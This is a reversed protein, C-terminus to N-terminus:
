PKAPEPPVPRDGGGGGPHLKAMAVPHPLHEVRTGLDVTSLGLHPLRSSPEASRSAKNLTSCSQVGQNLM